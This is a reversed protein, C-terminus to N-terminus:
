FSKQKQNATLVKRYQDVAEADRQLQTYAFALNFRLDVNEADEQLAKELLPAATAYDERELAAAADRLADEAAPAAFLLLGFLAALM